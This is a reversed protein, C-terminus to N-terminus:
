AKHMKEIEKKRAWKLILGIPIISLFALTWIDPGYVAFPLTFLAAIPESLVRYFIELEETNTIRDSTLGRSRAYRWNIAGVFGALALFISEMQLALTMGDYEIDFRLFYLYIMLFIVQLLALVAHMPSSRKINGLLLNFQIWYIIILILGVVIVLLQMLNDAYIQSLSNYELLPDDPRPLILFAQFILLAYLVNVVIRISNLLGVGREKEAESLEKKKFLAM